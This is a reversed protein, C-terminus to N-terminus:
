RTDAKLDSVGPTKCMCCNGEPIFITIVASYPSRGIVNWSYMRYEYTGSPPHSVNVYYIGNLTQIDPIDTVSSNIWPSDSSATSRYEIAFTQVRGGNFGPKFRFELQNAMFRSICFVDVMQPPSDQIVQFILDYIGFSNTMNVLYDGFEAQSGLHVTISSFLGSTSTPQNPVQQWIVTKSARHYWMIDTPEPYAIVHVELTVNDKLSRYYMSSINKRYDLRPGCQVKLNVEASVTVGNMVSNTASCIYKGANLCRATTHFNLEHSDQTMSILVDAFSLSIASFPNSDVHCYLQLTSNEQIESINYKAAFETITANYLVNVQIQSTSMGTQQGGVSPTMTNQATCSYTGSKNRSVSNFYLRSPVSGEGSPSWSIQDPPPNSSVQCTVNLPQYEIVKYPSTLGQISPPYLVDVEIKTTYTGIQQGEVTPTMTNQATCSYIGSKNRSVSSIHLTSPVSSEGRPSWLIQDPSPNSSVKCTMSLPQYEIVKYPSTLGQILPP